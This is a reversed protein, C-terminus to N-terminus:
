TLRRKWRWVALVGLACLVMNGSAPEPTSLDLSWSTGADGPIGNEDWEWAAGLSGGSDPPYALYLNGPANALGWQGSVASLTADGLTGDFGVSDAFISASNPGSSAWTLSDDLIFTFSVVSASDLLPFAGGDTGTVTISGSLASNTGGLVESPSSTLNYVYTTNALASLPVVAILIAALGLCRPNWM